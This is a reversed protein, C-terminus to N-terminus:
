QLSTLQDTWGSDYYVVGDDRKIAAVANRQVHAQRVSWGLGAGVVIVLLMLGRLSFRLYRRWPHPVPGAPM